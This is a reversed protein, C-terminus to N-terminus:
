RELQGSWLMHPAAAAQLQPDTDLSGNAALPKRMLANPVVLGRIVTSQHEVVEFGFRAFFPQATLSVDATLVGISGAHATAHIHKMLLSGVGKRAYPAAVFFHDIYGNPQVDAYGAIDGRDEVVFPQIDRIRRMWFAQDLDKPAWAQLQRATYDACAVEHVASLFVAHLAPEDGAHFPRIRM